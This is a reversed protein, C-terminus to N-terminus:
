PKALRCHQKILPLHRDLGTVDFEAIQKGDRFPIFEILVRRAKLLHDLHEQAYALFIAQYNTTVEGLLTEAEANDYRIRGAIHTQPDRELVTGTRLYIQLDGRSCRIYLTPTDQVSKRRLSDKKAPVYVLLTEKNDMPSRDVDAHWVANASGIVLLFVSAVILQRGTCCPNPMMAGLRSDRKRFEM